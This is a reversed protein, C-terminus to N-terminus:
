SAKTPDGVPWAVGDGRDMTAIEAMDHDDISFSFIDANQQMREPNTSKPLVPYGKQIAWRLLVQAESVRYKKALLRFPSDARQSDAKMADTKASDHGPAKRWTSLPVLSSYAIPTIGREQLYRVLEPKQSWPHLELQNAQAPPLGAAELEDLHTVNFNSVGIARAKGQERLAVLARWQEIRQKRDFPAHILYLDVYDLGLRDLSEELSAITTATTKPTQGWASNGPWLKTTVFLDRRTVVGAELAQRIGAGVGGENQYVEATDIHRYGIRIAERVAAIAEGDPILYTGFGLYPIEVDAALARTREHNSM